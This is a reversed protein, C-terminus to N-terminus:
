SWDVVDDLLGPFREAVFARYQEMHTRMLREARTSSGNLIAQAIKEHVSRVRAREARPATHTTIHDSYICTLAGGFIDLVRNGSMGAVVKHFESSARVWALDDDLEVAKAAEIAEQLRTLGEPDQRQAALGAMMPDLLFRAETLERWSAGIAHLYFTASRGFDRNSVNRIVPGGGSGSRLTIVGFVELIRLAERLSSRAVGFDQLMAAEPPLRDGPQLDRARIEHLIMRAVADSVKEPRDLSRTAGALRPRPTM